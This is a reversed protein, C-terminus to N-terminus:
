SIAVAVETDIIEETMLEGYDVNQEKMFDQFDSTRNLTANMHLAKVDGANLTVGKVLEKDGIKVAVQIPSDINMELYNKVSDNFKIEMEQLDSISEGELKVLIPTQMRAHDLIAEKAAEYTYKQLDLPGYYGQETLIVKNTEMIKKGYEDLDVCDYIGQEKLTLELGTEKLYTQAFQSTLSNMDKTEPAFPTLKVADAQLYINLRELQSVDRGMSRIFSEVNEYEAVKMDQALEHITEKIEMEEKSLPKEPDVVKINKDMKDMIEELIAEQYLKGAAERSTCVVEEDWQMQGDMEKYNHVLRYDEGQNSKLVAISEGDIESKNILEYSENRIPEEEELEEVAFTNEELQQLVTKQLEEMTDISDFDINKLAQLAVSELSEQKIDQPDVELVPAMREKLANFLEKSKEKILDVIKQALELMRLHKMDDASLEPNMYLSTNLGYKEGLRIEELQGEDYVELMQPDVKTGMEMLMRATRMKEASIEPSTYIATDVGHQKGLTMEKLQNLDFKGALLLAPDFGAKVAARYGKLYNNKYSM